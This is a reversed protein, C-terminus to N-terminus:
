GQMEAKAVALIGAVGIGSQRLVQIASRATTGTTYIDDVLLVTKSAHRKSFRDEVCFANALNQMREEPTLGFQAETARDRRLGQSMPLRTRDCFARAIVEAQNYGRQKQKSAHLPIPVVVLPKVLSRGIAPSDLWADALYYGLLRGIRPQNDYKLAALSRKLTGGYSGWALVPLPPQWFKSPQPLRFQQLRKLCDPCIDAAPRQCLHCEAKLFLDALSGWRELQERM